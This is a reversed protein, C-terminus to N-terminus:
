ATLHQLASMSMVERARCRLCSTVVGIDEVTTHLTGGCSCTRREYVHRRPTALREECQRSCTGGWAADAPRDPHFVCTSM